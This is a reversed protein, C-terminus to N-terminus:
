FDILLDPQDTLILGICLRSEGMFHTPETILQHLGLDVTFPEFSKGADNELDNEWWVPSHANFDGNILVCFPNEATM